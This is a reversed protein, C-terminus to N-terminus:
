PECRGAHPYSPGERSQTLPLYPIGDSENRASESPAGLRVGSVPRVGSGTWRHRSVPYLDAVTGSWDVGSGPGEVGGGHVLNPKGVDRGSM